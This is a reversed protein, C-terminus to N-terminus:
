TVRKRFPGAAGTRRRYGAFGLAAFGILLMGWTPAEPVQPVITLLDSTSLSGNSGFGGASNIAIQIEQTVSYPGSINLLSSQTSTGAGTFAASALQNETGWLSNDFSVYSSATVVWGPPLTNQTLTTDFISKNPSDATTLDRETIWVTFTQGVSADTAAFNLAASSLQYSTLDYASIDNILFTGYAGSFTAGVAGNASAVQTISDGDVGTEQLGIYIIQADTAKTAVTLLCVGLSLAILPSKM